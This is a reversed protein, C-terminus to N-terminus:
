VSTRRFVEARSAKDKKQATELSVWRELEQSALDKANEYAHIRAKAEFAEFSNAGLSEVRGAFNKADEVMGNELCFRVAFLLHRVDPSPTAVTTRILDFIKERLDKMKQPDTNRNVSLRLSREYIQALAFRDEATSAPSKAILTEMMAQAKTLDAERGRTLLLQVKIRTDVDTAAIGENNLLKEAREWDEPRGRFALQSAYRRRLNM